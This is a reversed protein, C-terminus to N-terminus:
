NKKEKYELKKYLENKGEDILYYGIHSQKSGVSKQNCLEITKKAVYIESMNTKRAIEKITNRYYEKTKYEMNEYIGAPDNNLIGEVGNIKEFIDLFNIRQIKKISTICNGMSIKRIATAFHEKQIADSVTIGLKEVEEKQSGTLLTAVALLAASAVAARKM